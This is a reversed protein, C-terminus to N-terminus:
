LPELLHADVASKDFHLKFFVISTVLCTLRGDAKRANKIVYKHINTIIETHM